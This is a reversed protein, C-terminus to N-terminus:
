AEAAMMEDCWDLYGDNPDLTPIIRACVEAMGLTHDALPLGCAECMIHESEGM